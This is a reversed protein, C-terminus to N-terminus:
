RELWAMIQERLQSQQRLMGIGRSRCPMVDQQRQGEPMSLYLRLQVQRSDQDDSCAAMFVQKGEPLRPIVIKGRGELPSILYLRDFEPRAARLALGPGASVGRAFIVGGSALAGSQKLAFEMLSVTDAVIRECDAESFYPPVQSADGGPFRSEGHGRLDPLLVAYGSEQVLKAFFKLPRGTAERDHLIIALPSEVKPSMFFEAALELSDPQQLHLRGSKDAVYEETGSSLISTLVMLVTAPFVARRM